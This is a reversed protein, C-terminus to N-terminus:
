LGFLRKNEETLLNLLTTLNRKDDDIEHDGKPTELIKIVDFFREDNMLLRFAELGIAGKGIDEHRDVRSGREKKSDNMHIVKIQELGIIRDFQKWLEHYSASSSFDYGAAFMHCTDVCIGIRAKDAVGARIIALQEFTSCMSSGQGAMTELLIMTPGPAQALALNIGAIIKQVAQMSEQDGASGPHLVLYGIGLEQCRIIEKALAQISKQYIEENQAALNILYCAHTVVAQIGSASAAQKFTAIEQQTLDKAQWQRNSKTFIQIATCGTKLAQEISKELGGSVSM